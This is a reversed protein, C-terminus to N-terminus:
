SGTTEAEKGTVVAMRKGVYRELGISANSFTEATAITAPHANFQDVKSCM